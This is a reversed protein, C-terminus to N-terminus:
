SCCRPRPFARCGWGPLPQPARRGAPRRGGGWCRLHRKRSGRRRAGLPPLPLLCSSAPAQGPAAPRPRRPRSTAVPRPIAPRDRGRRGPPKPASPDRREEGLGPVGREEAFPFLGELPPSPAAPGPPLAGGRAPGPRRARHGNCAATPPRQTGAAGRGGEAARGCSPSGVPREGPAPLLPFPGNETTHPLQGRPSRLSGHCSQPSHEGSALPNSVQNNVSPRPRAHGGKFYRCPSSLFTM